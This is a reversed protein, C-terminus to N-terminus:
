RIPVKLHYIGEAFCGLEYPQFSFVYNGNIIGPAPLNNFHGSDDLKKKFELFSCDDETQESEVLYSRYLQRRLAPLDEQSFFDEFSVETKTIKSFTVFEATPYGHAGGSYYYSNELYTVYLESEEVKELDIDYTNDITYDGLEDLVDTSYDESDLYERAAMGALEEMQPEVAASRDLYYGKCIRSALWQLVDWDGDHRGSPYDVILSYTIKSDPNSTGVKREYKRAFLHMDHDFPKSLSRIDQLVSPSDLRIELSSIMNSLHIVNPDDFDKRGWLGRGQAVLMDGWFVGTAYGINKDHLITILRNKYIGLTDSEWQAIPYSAKFEDMEGKLSIKESTSVTQSDSDPHPYEQSNGRNRSGTNSCSCLALAVVAMIGSVVAYVRFYKMMNLTM